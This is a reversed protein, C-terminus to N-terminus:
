FQLVGCRGFIINTKLHRQNTRSHLRKINGGGMRTIQHGSYGGDFFRGNFSAMWGIWGVLAYQENTLQTLGNREQNYLGRFYSYTEKPIFTPYVLKNEQSVLSKFMEILYKNKDNAIRRYSTPVHQIVSCSGCFLDVFCPKKSKENICSYNEESKDKWTSGYRLMIPLIEDVIRRKSGLYKM